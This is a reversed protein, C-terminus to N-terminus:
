EWPDTEPDGTHWRIHSDTPQNDWGFKLLGFVGEDNGGGAVSFGANLLETVFDNYNRIEM